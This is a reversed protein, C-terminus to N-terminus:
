KQDSISCKSRHRFMNEVCPVSNCISYFNDVISDLNTQSCINPWDFNSISKNIEKFNARNFDFIFEYDDMPQKIIELNNIHITLAKHHITDSFFTEHEDTLQVYCYEHITTFVLDLQRNSNNMITSIQHLGNGYTGNILEQDCQDLINYPLLVNVDEEDVMFKLNPRNFDGILLIEDKDRLKNSITDISRTLDFYELEISQPPIYVAGIYFNKGNLLISTWVVDLLPSCSLEFEIVSSKLIKKVAIM